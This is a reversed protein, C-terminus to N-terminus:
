ETLMPTHERVNMLGSPEAPEVEHFPQFDIVGNIDIDDDNDYGFISASKGQLGEM